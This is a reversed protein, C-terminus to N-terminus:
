YPKRRLGKYKDYKRQRYKLLVCRPTFWEVLPKVCYAFSMKKGFNEKTKKVAAGFSGKEIVCTVPLFLGKKGESELLTIFVGTLRESVFMRDNRNPTRKEIEFLIPFITECYREFTSKEFVFMNFFYAKDGAFYCNKARVLDPYKEDIIESAITLDDGHAKKFNDEVSQRYAPLPSIFDYKAFMEDLRGDAINIEDFFKDSFRSRENYIKAGDSFALFRRYHVFGVVDPNGLEILHKYVWYIATMENFVSNKDAINDGKDDRLFYSPFEDKRNGVCIPVYPSSFLREDIKDPDHCIVFIKANM